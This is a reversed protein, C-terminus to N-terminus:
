PNFFQFGLPELEQQILWTTSCVSIEKKKEKENKKKKTKKDGKKGSM